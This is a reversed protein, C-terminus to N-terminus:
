AEMMEADPNMARWYSTGFAAHAKPLHGAYGVQRAGAASRQTMDRASVDLEREAHLHEVARGHGRQPSTSHAVAVEAYRSVRHDTLGGVHSSGFHNRARPVFGTYGVTVGGVQERYSLPPRSPEVGTPDDVCKAPWSPPKHGRGLEQWSTTHRNDLRQGQGQPKGSAASYRPRRSSASAARSMGHTRTAGDRADRFTDGTQAQFTPVGGFSMSHSVDRSGPRHGAYGPVIGGVADRFPYASGTGAPKSAVDFLTAQAKAPNVERRGAPGARAPPPSAPRAAPERHQVFVSPPKPVGQQLHGGFKSIVVKSHAELHVGPLASVPRSM